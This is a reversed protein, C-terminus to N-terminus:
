TMSQSVSLCLSGKLHMHMRFFYTTTKFQYIRKESSLCYEFTKLAGTIRLESLNTDQMLFINAILTIWVGGLDSIRCQLMESKIAERVNTGRSIPLWPRWSM